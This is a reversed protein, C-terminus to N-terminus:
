LEEIDKKLIADAEQNVKQKYYNEEDKEIEKRMQQLKVHDAM